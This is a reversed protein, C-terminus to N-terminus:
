KLNYYLLLIVGTMLSIDAINTSIINFKPYIPVFIWDIVYGLRIRDIINALLGAIILSTGIEILKNKKNKLYYIFLGITILIPLIIIVFKNYAFIGFIIGPNESYKVLFIKSIITFNKYQLYFKTLQDLILISLIILYFKFKM